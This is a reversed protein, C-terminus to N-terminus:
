RWGTPEVLHFSTPFLNQLFDDLVDDTPNPCLRFQMSMLLRKTLLLVINSITVSFSPLFACSGIAFLSSHSSAFIYSDPIGTGDVSVPLFPAAGPVAINAVPPSPPQFTSFRYRMQLVAM